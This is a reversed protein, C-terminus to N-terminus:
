DDIIIDCRVTVVAVSVKRTHNDNIIAYAGEEESATNSGEYRSLIKAGERNYEMIFSAIEKHETQALM